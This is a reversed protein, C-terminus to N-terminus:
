QDGAQSWRLWVRVRRAVDHSVSDPLLIIHRRRRSNGARVAVVSIWKGVFSAGAATDRGEQWAGTKLQYDLGSSGLRLTIISQPSVLLADRRAVHIAGAIVFGCAIVAGWLPLYVACLLVTVM